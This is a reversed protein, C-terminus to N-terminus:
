SSFGPAVNQYSLSISSTTTKNGTRVILQIMICVSVQGCDASLLLTIISIIVTLGGTLWYLYYYLSFHTKTKEDRKFSLTLEHMVGFDCAPATILERGLRLWEEVSRGSNLDLSGCQHGKWCQQVCTAAVEEFANVQETRTQFLEETAEMKNNYDQFSLARKWKERSNRNEREKLTNQPM